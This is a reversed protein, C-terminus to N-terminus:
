FNRGNPGINKRFIDLNNLAYWHLETCVVLDYQHAYCSPLDQLIDLEHFRVGPVLTAATDSATRSIDFGSVQADVAAENGIRQTMYGLGCGIDAISDFRCLRNMYSIIAVDLDAYLSLSTEDQHWPVETPAHDPMKARVAYQPHALIEPGILSQVVDLLDPDSRLHFVGPSKFKGYDRYQKWIWNRERCADSLRAMRQGFPAGPFNRGPDVLGRDVAVSALDDVMEEVDYILPRIAEDRLVDRVILYGDDLFRRVQQPSLGQQTPM